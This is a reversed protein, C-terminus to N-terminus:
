GRGRGGRGGGGGVDEAQEDGNVGEGDDGVESEESEQEEEFGEGGIGGQLPAAAPWVTGRRLAEPPTHRGVWLHLALVSHQQEVPTDSRQDVM